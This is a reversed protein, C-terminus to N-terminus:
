SNHLFDRFVPFSSFKNFKGIKTENKLKVEVLVNKAHAIKTFDERSIKYTLEEEVSQPEIHYAVIRPQKVPPLSIIQSDIQFKLNEKPNLLQKNKTRSIARVKILFEDSNINRELILYFRSNKTNKISLYAPKSISYGVKADESYSNITSGISCSSLIILGLGIPALLVITLIKWLFDRTLKKM